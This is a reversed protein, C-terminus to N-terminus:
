ALRYNQRMHPLCGAYSMGIKSIQEADFDSLFNAIMECNQAM